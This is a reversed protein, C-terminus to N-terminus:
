FFPSLQIGRFSKFGRELKCSCSHTDETEKDPRSSIEVTSRPTTLRKPTFLVRKMAMFLLPLNYVVTLERPSPCSRAAPPRISVGKVVACVACFAADKM